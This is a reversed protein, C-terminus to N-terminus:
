AELDLDELEKIINQKKKVKELQGQEVTQNMKIKDEIQEIERLTKKLKRIQKQRMDAEIQEPTIKNSIKIESMKKVLDTSKQTKKSQEKHERELDDVFM